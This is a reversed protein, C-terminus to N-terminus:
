SSRTARAPARRQRGTRGRRRGRQAGQLREASENAQHRDADTSRWFVVGGPIKRVTVPVNLECAIRLIYNKMREPRIEPGLRVRTAEASLTQIKNRLTDYLMTEMRPGRGM